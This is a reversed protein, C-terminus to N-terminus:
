NDLNFVIKTHFEKQSEGVWADIPFSKYSASKVAQLAAQDLLPYGSSTIVRESVLEGLRNIVYSVEVTGVMGLRQATAPYIKHSEIQVKVDNIFQGEALKNSVISKVENIPQPPTKETSRTPISKNELTENKVAVTSNQAYTKVPSNNSKLQKRTPEQIPKPPIFTRKEVPLAESTRSVLNLKISEKAKEQIAHVSFKSIFFYTNILLLLSVLGAISDRNNFVHKM